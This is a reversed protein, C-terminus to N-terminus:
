VEQTIFAVIRGNEDEVKYQIDDSEEASSINKKLYEIYPEAWGMTRFSAVLIEEIVKGEYNVFQLFVKVSNKKM